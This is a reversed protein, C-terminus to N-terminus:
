FENSIVGRSIKKIKYNNTSFVDCLYKVVNEVNINTDCLFIDVAAYKHEPWTHITFHSEKLVLVGSVGYPKFQHFCKKVVNFNGIKGANVMINRIKSISTLHNIDCDYFDLLYHVGLINNM